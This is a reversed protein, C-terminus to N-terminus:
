LLLPHMCDALTGLAGDLHSRSLFNAFGLMIGQLPPARVYMSSLATVALGRSAASDAIASDHLSTHVDLLLQLGSQSRVSVVDGLRHTVAAIMMKKRESLLRRSKTLHLAYHGDDIFEALVKQLLLPAGDMMASTVARVKEAVNTPAVFYAIRLSPHLTNSFTGLMFTRRGRDLSFITPIHGLGDCFDRDYDDEVIWVRDQWARRLLEMRRDLTMCLGLPIQRSPTVVMMAVGSTPICRSNIDMGEADVPVPVVNMGLQHLADYTSGPGPDETLVTDGSSAIAHVLICLSQKYGSTIFIQDPRCEVGRSLRIHACISERLEPHGSADGCVESVESRSRLIRQTSKLWAARPFADLAPVCLQFPRCSTVDEVGLGGNAANSRLRDGGKSASAAFDPSSPLRGAGLTNGPMYSVRTGSQGHSALLGEGLLLAYAKAISARSMKMEAALIRISPVRTGYRYAGCLISGKIRDYVKRYQLHSAGAGSLPSKSFSQSALLDENLLAEM